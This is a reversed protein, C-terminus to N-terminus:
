RYLDSPLDYLLRAARLLLVDNTGDEHLYGTVDRYYKELPLDKMYGYGGFLELAEKAVELTIESTFVKSLATLTPDTEEEPDDVNAAARYLYTRAADLRMKMRALRHQTLQHHMLTKGGVFRDQAHRVAAEYAARASGLCITGLQITGGEGVLFDQVDALGRGREGILHDSPIRCDNMVLSGHWITRQGLKNEVHGCSLGPADGPVLFASVRETVDREPDAVAFIIYLGAMGANSIFQKTGNLVWEDGVLEARTDLTSDSREMGLIWNSGGSPETIGIGLLFEPDERFRALYRAQQLPTCLRLLALSIRWGQLLIISFGIDGAGLEEGIVCRTTVDAAIGGYEPPLTITRLGLKDAKHLLEASFGDHPDPRADIEACIPVIEEQAFRRVTDRLMRQEETLKFDIVGPGGSRGGITTGTSLNTDRRQPSAVLTSGPAM